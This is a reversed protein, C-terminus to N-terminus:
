RVTVKGGPRRHIPNGTLIHDSVTFMGLARKGFQRAKMYLGASEMEACLAGYQMLNKFVEDSFNTYFQDSSLVTGAHVRIGMERAKAYAQVLLDFDPTPCFEYPGFLGYSKSDTNAATALVLDHLQIAKQM